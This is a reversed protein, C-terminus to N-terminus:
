YRLTGQIAISRPPETFGFLTGTAPNTGPPRPAVVSSAFVQGVTMEFGTNNGSGVGRMYIQDSGAAGEAFSFNPVSTSLEELKTIGSSRMLEGTVVTIAVPADNVNQERKQSTVVIEELVLEGQAFSVTALLGTITFVACASLTRKLPRVTNKLQSM